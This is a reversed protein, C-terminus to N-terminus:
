GEGGDLAALASRVQEADDFPLIKNGVQQGTEHGKGAVLLVDGTQLMGCASAIAEARDGIESAEPAGVLTQRRIESADESRPNDDTVIVLDAARVAARAMMPRKGRDRDGGCGFVIILRGETFPRLARCAIEIAEPKHAYDVYVRAGNERAGVLELRGRTGALKPLAALVAKTDAGLGVAAALAAMVNEAQFDGVLPLFVQALEGQAHVEILQGEGRRELLRCGIDPMESASRIGYTLLRHNRRRGTAVLEATFESAINLVALGDAPLLEDFLRHKARFYDDADAHYDLHDRSLNTFIAGALRIADLRAQDIGHSSAEVALHDVGRQSLDRLLRHLTVPEPTTHAIKEDLAEAVAGLTGLSGARLGLASWIQRLFGVVSSKGSTGTVAVVTDPQEPYFRAALKALRRRPLKDVVCPVSIGGVDVGPSILVAAAGRAVADAIFDAGDQRFGPLAAFLFGPRVERSDATLGTIEIDGLATEHM